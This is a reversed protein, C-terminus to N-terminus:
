RRLLGNLLNSIPISGTSTSTQPAATPTSTGTLGGVTGGVTGTLGGVTGGLTGTLGGVTSGVTGTLGGVTGGLTNALGGVAGGVAGPLGGTALGNVTGGVTSTLGGVTGGVTSTLGGVTGGVTSTLGGVTGNITGFTDVLGDGEGSYYGNRGDGGVSTGPSYSGAYTARSVYDGGTLALADKISAEKVEANLAEQTAAPTSTPIVSFEAALRKAAEPTITEPTSIPKAASVAVRELAGLKVAPGVLSGAADLKTVEVLGRLITIRSRHGDSAPSVEAVVVTGRIATVANPTRIEVAEGPKMMAKSVAVSIRGEGLQITAVGPVETITVVSRERATVTAKGGLLVRVISREGTTIRDHLYVSDKFHLPQAQPVALRAVTASGELTTVVGVREQTFAMPPLALLVAGTMLLGAVYRKALAMSEEATPARTSTRVHACRHLSRAVFIGAFNRIEAFKLEITRL